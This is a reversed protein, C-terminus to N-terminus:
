IQRISFSQASSGCVNMSLRVIVDAATLEEDLEQLIQASGASRGQALLWM